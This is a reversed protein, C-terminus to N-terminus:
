ILDNINIDKVQSGRKQLPNKLHCFQKFTRFYKRVPPWHSLLYCILFAFSVAALTYFAFWVESCDAASNEEKLKVSPLPILSTTSSINKWISTKLYGESFSFPNFNYPFTNTHISM